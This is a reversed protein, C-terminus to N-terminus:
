KKAYVLGNQFYIFPACTEKFGISQLDRIQGEISTLRNDISYHKLWMKKLRRREDLGIKRAETYKASPNEFEKRIFAFIDDNALKSISPSDFCFLDLNLLIGGDNLLKHCLQFVKRKKEESYHHLVYASIIIDYKNNGFAHLEKSEFTMDFINAIPYNVRTKSVGAEALHSLFVDRMPECIDLATTLINPNDKMLRISENGTGAGIDLLHLHTKSGTNNCYENVIKVLLEIAEDYYPTTLAVTANYMGAEYEAYFFTSINEEM